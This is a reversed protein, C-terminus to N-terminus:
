VLNCPSQLESTHEESRGAAGQMSEVIALAELSDALASGRLHARYLGEAMGTLQERGLATSSSTRDIAAQLETASGAALGYANRLTTLGELRLLESRRVDAQTIAYRVLLAIAGVTAASLALVAAAVAAIPGPLQVSASMISSLAGSFKGAKQKTTDFTGGLEIYKGTTSAIADKHATIKANLAAIAAANPATAAKLSRMAAQM